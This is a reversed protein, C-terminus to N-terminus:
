AGPARISISYPDEPGSLLSTLVSGFLQGLLGGECRISPLTTTGSFSWGKGLLEERSLTDVLGFQMPQSTLCRTPVTLGLLSVSTIGLNLRLPMSIVEAGSVSTSSALSGAIGGLQTITAGLNVPLLGFLKLPASFPPVSINGTLSGGGSELNLEGVGSFSSGGPLAIAQALKKDTLTGSLVWNKYEAKEVTLYTYHDPPGTTSTGAPTTVTVDVTGSGAPAVATISGEANVKFSAASSPGFRVVSAGKLNAGTITVSTGGTLPGSVPEVGTVTPKAAPNVYTFEDAPGLPSMGVVSEITVHATGAGPPSVATMQTPSVVSVSEADASGFKVFQLVPSGLSCLPVEEFVSGMFAAGTITVTTGGTTPGATPELKTITPEYVFGRELAGCGNYETSGEPTAIYIGVADQTGGAFPPSVATIRTEGEVTFSRAPTSGFRVSTAGALRLGGIIVRTGGSPPGHDPEVSTIVPQSTYLFQDAASTASEGSATTVVIDVRGSGPPSVARIENEGLVEFSAASAAGFKVATAGALNAGRIIVPSGGAPFGEDPEVKEVRPFPVPPAGAVALSFYTGAAIATADSLGSVSVPVDSSKTTANGLEGDLNAGWATVTGNSSLALSHEGGAAVRTVSGLPESCPATREGLACVPVPVDSEATNGNGLQGFAGRGWAVVTGNGLLALAHEDGAAISTVGTLGSVPVPLNSDATGGDGLQGEGGRGWSMVTGNKMLALSFGYGAAIATVEHLGSVEVPTASTITSGNGLEGNRNEGWALVAGNGLLAMSHEGGAAIATVGSLGPVSEPTNSEAMTGNGLQGEYNAGWAVVAGNGLLALSHLAGGALATVGSLTSVPIPVKSCPFQNSCKETPSGVGLQGVGGDGWATVAGGGSLALSHYGGAAVATVGSLGSVPVPVESQSELGDGLQGSDNQGWAVAGATGTLGASAAPLLLSAGLARRGSASAPEAAGMLAVATALVTILSASRRPRAFRAPPRALFRLTLGSGM